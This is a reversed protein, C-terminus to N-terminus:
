VAYEQKDLVRSSSAGTVLDTHQLVTYLPYLVAQSISLTQCGGPRCIVLGNTKDDSKCSRHFRYLLEENVQEKHRDLYGSFWAERLQIADSSYLTASSFIYSGLPNLRNEILKNGNWSARYLNNNSYLLITFPEIQELDTESLLHQPNSSCILDLLILGRSKRYKEKKRHKEFAGNFLVALNGDSDATFWSGGRADKAYVVKKFTTKEEHLYDTTARAALEDRSFTFVSKGPSGWYTVTCM